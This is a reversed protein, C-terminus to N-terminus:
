PRQKGTHKYGNRGAISCETVFGAQSLVLLVRQLDADTIHRYNFRLIDKYSAHGVTEIYRLVRDQAVALPSEGVSRFTVDVTEKINNVLKMANFLHLRTLILSDDESIALAMATKIVHSAMRAKFGTMMDSDFDNADFVNNQYFEEWLAKGDPAFKFEGSLTSIHKLDEILNDRILQYSGNMSPWPVAKSKKSAYVFICRSAFGGTVAETADRNLKAIFNPVCGALLSVCLGTAEFTGKTKTDYTFSGKEWLECLLPLIWESGQTLIPLETQVITATNDSTAMTVQTGSIRVSSFGRALKEVIKEPTIKDPLHNVTGAEKSLDVAPNIATGKGVGPPGVLVIYQNPYVKYPFRSIFVHKKLSSALVSLGAWLNFVRPSETEQLYDLYATLWPKQLKRSSVSLM